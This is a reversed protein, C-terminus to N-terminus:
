FESFWELMGSIAEYAASGHTGGSITVLEVTAQSNPTLNAVTTVANFYPVVEDADGHFFRLPVTPYWDLLTNDEIASKVEIETGALYSAIFDTQVLDTLTEPLVAEIESYSYAGSFLEPLNTNYPERFIRDMMNWDYADNYATFIYGPYVSNVYGMNTIVSDITASMNYPGAMPAVATLTIEESHYNEIERATALAAYGGESYGSLFIKDNPKIGEDQCVERAARYCDIVATATSKAHLYPHIMDSEGLGLYDPIVTVYGNAATVLGLLGEPSALPNISAVATQKTETGHTLILVPASSVEAPVIVAGSATVMNGDPGITQYIIGFSHVDYNLETGLDLDALQLYNNIDSVSLTVRLSYEELDGRRKEAQNDECGSFFVLLASTLLAIIILHKRIRLM